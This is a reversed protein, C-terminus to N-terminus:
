RWVWSLWRWARGAMGAVGFDEGLKTSHETRAPTMAKTVAPAAESVATTDAAQMQQLISPAELIHPRYSRGGLGHALNDGFQLWRRDLRDANRIADVYNFDEPKTSM